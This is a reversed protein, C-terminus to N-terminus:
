TMSAMPIAQLCLGLDHLLFAGGLVYAEIPTIEYDKGIIIEAIQWLADIHRPVDHVTLERIGLPIEGALQEARERFRILSERLRTRLAAAPDDQARTAFASQWLKTTNYSM